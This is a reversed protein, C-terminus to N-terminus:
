DTHEALWKDFQDKQEATLRGREPLGLARRAEVRIAKAAKEAEITAKDRNKSGPKRGRSEVGDAPRAAVAVPEVIEWEAVGDHFELNLVGEIAHGGAAQYKQPSLKHRKLGASREVRNEDNVPFSAGYAVKGVAKSIVGNAVLRDVYTQKCYATLADQQNQDLRGREPFGLSARGEIRTTNINFM